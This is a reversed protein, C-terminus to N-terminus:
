FKNAVYVGAGVANILSNAPEIPEFGSLSTLYTLVSHKIKTETLCIVDPLYPFSQLLEHNLCDLNKYIFRINVHLFFLSKNQTSILFSNNTELYRCTKINNTLSNYLASNLDFQQTANLLAEEGRTYDVTQMSTSITRDCSAGSFTCLDSM